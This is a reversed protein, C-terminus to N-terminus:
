DYAAIHLAALPRNGFDACGSTARIKNRGIKSVRRARAFHRFFSDLESVAV